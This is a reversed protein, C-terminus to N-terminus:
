RKEKKYMGTNSYFNDVINNLVGVAKQGNAKPLTRKSYKAKADRIAKAKALKVSEEAYAQRQIATTKKKLIQQYARKEKMAKSRVAWEKKVIDKIFGM